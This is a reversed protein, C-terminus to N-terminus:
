KMKVKYTNLIWNLTEKKISLPTLFVELIGKLNDTENTRKEEKTFRILSEQDLLYHSNEADYNKSPAEISLSRELAIAGLKSRSSNNLGNIRSYDSCYWSWNGRYDSEYYKMAVFQVLDELHREHLNKFLFNACFKSIKEYTKLDM